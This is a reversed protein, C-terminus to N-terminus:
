DIYGIPTLTTRRKLVKVPHGKDDMVPEECLHDKYLHVLLKGEKLWKSLQESYKMVAYQDKDTQFM